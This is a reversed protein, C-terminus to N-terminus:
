HTKLKRLSSILNPFESIKLLMNEIDLNKAQFSLENGYDLLLSINHESGINKIKEAFKDAGQISQRHEFEKWERMFDTELTKIIEKIKQPSCACTLIKDVQKKTREDKLEDDVSYKIHKKLENYIDKRQIPKRLFGDFGFDKLSHGVDDVASSTIAIVPIHQLNINAKIAKVTAFGDPAPMRLDMFIIDPKHTQTLSIGQEGDEAEYINFPCDRMTSIVLDRDPKLDDVILINAPKFNIKLDDADKTRPTKNKPISYKLHDFQTTFISGSGETSKLSITGNMMKVLKKSIALGLGTGGYKRNDQRDRQYFTEFIKEQEEMPIGIGSDEVSITLNGYESDTITFDMSMKVFGKKTFKVANSVLNLLIQQLRLEDLFINKPINDPFSVIFDIKKKMTEYSIIHKINGIIHKLYIPEKTIKLKGAEIKSLDLIDNILNLLIQGSSRISKIHGRLSPSDIKSYLLDAFGIVSNLPTRIEHGVNALFINKAQNATEAAEKAKKLNIIAQNRESIDRFIGLAIMKENLAFTSSSIEVPIHEGNSNVIQMERIAVSESSHEHLEKFYETTNRNQPHLKSQHLGIIDNKTRGLLQEAKKNVEMIIGSKVDTIFIADNATEIIKRFKEESELLAIKAEKEETIDRFISITSVFNNENDFIPSSSVELLRKENDARTITTEYCGNIGEKRKSTENQYFAFETPDVFNKLNRDLLDPDPLGFIKNAAPNAFEFNENEDVLTVGESQNNILIRFKKESEILAQETQRIRTIDHSFILYGHQVNNDNRMLMIVSHVIHMNKDGSYIISEYETKEEENVKKLLNEFDKKSTKRTIKTDWLNKGIVDEAKYDYMLEAAPNFHIIKLKADIAIISYESASKLINDLINKTEELKKSEKKRVTIDRYVSLYCEKNNYKLLSSSVLLTKEEGDKTKIITEYNDTKKNEKLYYLQKLVRNRQSQQPYLLNIFSGSNNAEVATYATIEEMKRNFVEFYGNGDSLTIGDNVCDVVTQLRYLTEKNEDEQKKRQIIQDQKKTEELLNYSRLMLTIANRLGRNNLESKKIFADIDYDEVIQCEDYETCSNAIIIIRTSKNKLSNRVFDIFDIETPSINDSIKLIVIPIDTNYKLIEKALHSSTPQILEVRKSMFTFEGFAEGTIDQFRNESNVVLIKWTDKQSM